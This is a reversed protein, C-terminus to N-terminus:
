GSHKSPKTRLLGGVFCTVWHCHRFTPSLGTPIQGMVLIAMSTSCKPKAPSGIEYDICAAINQIFLRQDALQFFETKMPPMM